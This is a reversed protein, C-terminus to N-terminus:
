PKSPSATPQPVSHCRFCSFFTIFAVRDHCMGCYNGRFIDTMQIPNGGKEAKFPQPHCNSCALWLTHSRHPFRVYPMERTNRMIVDSDLVQMEENGKLGARPKILGEQLARMWDPFGNADYPMYRTAEDIRQLRPLDPNNPDHLDRQEIAQRAQHSSSGAPVAKKPPPPPPPPEETIPVLKLGAHVINPQLSFGFLLLCGAVTLFRMRQM